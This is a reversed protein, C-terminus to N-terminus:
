SVEDLIENLEAEELAIKKMAEELVDIKARIARRRESCKDLEARVEALDVSDDFRMEGGISRVKRGKFKM